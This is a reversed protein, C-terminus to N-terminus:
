PPCRAARSVPWLALGGLAKPTRHPRPDTAPDPM